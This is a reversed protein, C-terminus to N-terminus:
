TPTWAALELLSTADTNASALICTRGGRRWTVITADRDRLVAAGVGEYPVSSTGAPLAFAPGDIVMYAVLRGGRAYTVTRAPRGGVTDDRTGVPSWGGARATGPFRVEGVALPLMGDARPAPAPGTPARLATRAADTVSPGPARGGDLLLSALVAIPLAALVGAVGLVARALRRRGTAPRSRLREEAIRAALGQPARVGRVRARLALGVEESGTGRWPRNM